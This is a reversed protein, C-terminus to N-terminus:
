KGRRVRIREKGKRIGQNARTERMSDNLVLSICQFVVVNEVYASKGKNENEAM